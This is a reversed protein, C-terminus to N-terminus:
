SGFTWRLGAQIQFPLSPFAQTTAYTTGTYYYSRANTLNTATVRLNTRTSLQLLLGANIRNEQPASFTNMGDSYYSGAYDDWVTVMTRQGITQTVGLSLQHRPIGTPRRGTLDVELSTNTDLFRNDTWRADILSYRLYARSGRRPVAQTEFEIGQSRQSGANVTRNGPPDLLLELLDFRNLRFAAASFSVRGNFVDGKAGVEYNRAIEPKLNPDRSGFTWIPGFAPSFGEGFSAYANLGQSLRVVASLKPSVHHDSDQANSAATAGLTPAVAAFDVHRSFRDLRAGAVVTLRSGVRVDAQAYAADVNTRFGADVLTDAVWLSSNTFQGTQVNRRQDYFHFTFDALSFGTQGTWQELHGGSGHEFSAGAVVRAIRNTWQLQPEFFLAQQTDVSHYGLWSLTHDSERYGNAFGVNQRWNGVRIHGTARFQLSDNLTHRVVASGVTTRKFQHPDAINLNATDGGMVPVLAGDPLVPIYSAMGQRYTDHSLTATLDTRDGLFVQDKLLATGAKRGTQDRWGDKFKGTVGLLLANRQGTPLNVLLTPHAYGFSGVDVGVEGALVHAVPRTIYNVTGGISGRGYLASVPGKVVEVREVADLPIQDLEVEDHGTVMPVGDLLALFTDNHHQNPVGRVTLSTYTGEYAKAVAIGPVSKLEDGVSQVAREAIEDATIVQLTAPVDKNPTELRSATVTVAESLPALMLRVILASSESTDVRQEWPVFGPSRVRLSVAGAVPLLVSFEGIANTATRGIVRGDQIIEIEALAVATATEDEVRGQRTVERNQSYGPAAVGLLAVLFFMLHRNRCRRSSRVNM